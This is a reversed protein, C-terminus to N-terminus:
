IKDNPAIFIGLSITLLLGCIISVANISGTLRSEAKELGDCLAM